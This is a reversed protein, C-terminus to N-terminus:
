GTLLRSTENRLHAPIPHRLRWTFSIPRSGKHGEYDAPGLFHFPAALGSPLKRNERVFLLITGGHSRHNIYRQGTPSSDSTTSQSQWHFLRDSIAYDEYMTTPSYDSEHKNLTVFFADARITQIHVVGQRVPPQRALTWYGLGSLIEERIYSSYLRLPCPFPVDLPPAITAVKALRYALLERLDNCLHKNGQLKSLSELFSGPRDNADWLVFHLMLLHAKQGQSLEDSHGPPLDVLALISTIYAPDDIHQLRQLGKTLRAEDPDAFDERIGAAVCLRSWAGRSFIADPELHHFELFAALSPARGSENEFERIAQVLKPRSHDVARKLNDLVYHRAQRELTITCGAPLHAFGDRIQEALPRDSAMTLARYRLGLRYRHHAQGIFDLVTLCDKDRSLRLGRGFQQLFVTLSETPRLFLSALYDAAALRPFRSGWFEAEGRPIAVGTMVRLLVRFMHHRALVA